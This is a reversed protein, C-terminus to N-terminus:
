SLTFGHMLPDDPDVLFEHRGTICASGEVEPIVADYPGCRVTDIVRGTFTTGIISEIVVPQNVGVENGAFHLAMMASVGTGTPSRDVQGDAFVCVNRSSATNGKPPAIFITGYLFNMEPEDPHAFTHAAMIARKIAMGKEILVRYERETGSLGVADAHVFAYYAGGFALDYPVQGIGPVDVTDGIVEVFSPVNRFRVSQVHGDKMRCFASVLGAPTDIRVATEPEVAPLVGTEVVATAVAIIGHGCMTSYGENHMFIVGIDADATVPPTVFCGYMGSHGRPEHMLIQRVHDLHHLAYRRRELITTGRIEPVGGVVLRLPEGATHLDLVSIRRYRDPPAWAALRTLNM